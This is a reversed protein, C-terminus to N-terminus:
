EYFQEVFARHKDRVHWTISEFVVSVDCQQNRTTFVIDIGALVSLREFHM